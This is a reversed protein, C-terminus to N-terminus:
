VWSACCGWLRSAGCFIGECTSIYGPQGRDDTQHLAHNGEVQRGPAGEAQSPTNMGREKTQLIDSGWGAYFRDRGDFGLLGGCVRTLSPGSLGGM